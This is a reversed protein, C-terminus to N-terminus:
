SGLCNYIRVTENKPKTEFSLTFIGNSPNPYIKIMNSNSVTLTNENASEAMKETSYKYNYFAVTTLM